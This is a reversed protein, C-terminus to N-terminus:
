PVVLGIIILVLGVVIGVIGSLATLGETQYGGFPGIKILREDDKTEEDSDEPESLARWFWYAGLAVLISGLIVVVVSNANM